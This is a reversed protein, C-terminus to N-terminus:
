PSRRTTSRCAPRTAISACAASPSPVPSPAAAPEAGLPQSRRLIAQVRLLLERVSFPKVVYDDAGLEFGVVRDVEAGKATVM